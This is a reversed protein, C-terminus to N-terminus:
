FFVAPTPTSWRWGPRVNPHARADDIGIGTVGNWADHWFDTVQPHAARNDLGGVIAVVFQMGAFCDFIGQDVEFRKNL